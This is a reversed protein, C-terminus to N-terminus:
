YVVLLLLGSLVDGMFSSKSGPVHGSHSGPNSPFLKARHAPLLTGM